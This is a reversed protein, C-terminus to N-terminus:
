SGALGRRAVPRQDLGLVAEVVEAVEAPVSLEGQYSLYKKDEPDVRREIKVGFARGVNAVSGEVQVTRAAANEAVIRLGYKEAFSEVAALDAPDVRILQEAQERSLAPLSGALLQQRTDESRQPRRVIITPSIQVNADVPLWGGGDAHAAESGPIVFREAM